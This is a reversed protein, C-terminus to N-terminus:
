VRHQYEKLCPWIGRVRVNTLVLPTARYGRLLKAASNVFHKQRRNGTRADSHRVGLVCGRNALYKPTGLRELGATSM